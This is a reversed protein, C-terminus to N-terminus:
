EERAPLLGYAELEAPRLVKAELMVRRYLAIFQGVAGWRKSAPKNTLLAALCWLLRTLDRQVIARIEALTEGM